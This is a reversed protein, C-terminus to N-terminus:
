KIGFRLNFLNHKSCLLFKVCDCPCPKESLLPPPPPTGHIFIFVSLLVFLLWFPSFSISFQGCYFKFVIVNPEANFTQIMNSQWSFFLFLLQFQFTSTIGDWNTGGNMTHVVTTYRQNAWHQCTTQQQQQWQQERESNNTWWRRWLNDCTKM